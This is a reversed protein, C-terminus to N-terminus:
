LSKPPVTSASTSQSSSHFSSSSGSIAPSVNSSNSLNTLCHPLDGAVRSESSIRPQKQHHAEIHDNLHHVSRCRYKCDNCNIYSSAHDTETHEQLEDAKSFRRSCYDCSHLKSSQITNLNILSSTPKLSVHKIETHKSLENESSFGEDCNQCRFREEQSSPTSISPHTSRNHNELHTNENISQDCKKSSFDETQTTQNHSDPCSKHCTSNNINFHNIPTSPTHILNELKSLALLLSDEFTRSYSASNESPSTGTPNTSANRGGIHAAAHGVQGELQMIRKNRIELSEKLRKIETEQQVITSRCTDLATRQFEMEPDKTNVNSSRQRISNSPFKISQAAPINSSSGRPTFEPADPDLM